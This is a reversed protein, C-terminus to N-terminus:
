RPLPNHLALTALLGALALGDCIPQQRDGTHPSAADFLFVQNDPTVHATVHRASQRECSNIWAAVREASVQVGSGSQVTAFRDDHGVTVVMGCDTHHPLEERTVAPLVERLVKRRSETMNRPLQLALGPPPSQPWWARIWRQYITETAVNVVDGAQRRSRPSFLSPQDPLRLAWDDSTDRDTSIGFEAFPISVPRGDRSIVDIGVDGAFLSESTVLLGFEAEQHVRLCHSLSAASSRGANIVQASNQIAVPLVGAFLDPTGPGGDYGVAFISEGSSSQSGSTMITTLAAAVARDIANLYRGRIGFRTRRIEASKDSAPSFTEPESKAGEFRWVCNECASYGSALRGLHVARSVSQSEGPCQYGTAEPIIKTTAEPAEM